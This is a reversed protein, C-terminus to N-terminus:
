VGKITIRIKELFQKTKPLAACLFLYIVALSSIYKVIDPANFIFRNAMEISRSSRDFNIFPTFGPLLLLNALYGVVLSSFVVLISYMTVARKGILKYISILEPLNTATGALLFTIATGPAAGSAVLAAVFPLHGVACVYMLSSAVAVGGISIMGPNGFYQQFFRQPVISLVLGAFLMGPIVYKSVTLGLDTFGWQLSSKINEVIGSQEETEFAIAEEEEVSAEELGHLCIEEGAFMNSVIGIIVPIVFGAVLYIVAIQPGLLGFSLIVAAPNIIPTATMFALTPGLYAGSYYLSLGLPIVGCSCMPLFMGSLTSKVVSSVKKNGLMKQFKAPNLLTRLFGAFVFSIILWMSAGNLLQWSTQLAREVIAFIIM